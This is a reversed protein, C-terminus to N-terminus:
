KEIERELTSESVETCRSDTFVFRFSAFSHSSRFSYLRNDFTVRQEGSTRHIGTQYPLM